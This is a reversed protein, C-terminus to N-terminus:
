QVVTTAFLQWFRGQECAFGQDRLRRLLASKSV